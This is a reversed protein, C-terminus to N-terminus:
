ARTGRFPGIPKRQTRQHATRSSHYLLLTSWHRVHSATLPPRRHQNLQASHCFDCLPGKFSSFPLSSYPVQFRGETTETSTTRIGYDAFQECTHLAGGRSM